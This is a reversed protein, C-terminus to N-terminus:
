VSEDALFWYIPNPVLTFKVPPTKKGYLCQWFLIRHTASNLCFAKRQLIQLYSLVKHYCLENYLMPKPAVSCDQFIFGAYPSIFVWLYKTQTNPKACEKGDGRKRVGALAYLFLGLSFRLGGPNSVITAKDDMSRLKVRSEQCSPQQLIQAWNLILCMGEWWLM